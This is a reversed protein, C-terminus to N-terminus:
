DKAAPHDFVGPEGARRRAEVHGSFEFYDAFKVGTEAKGARV